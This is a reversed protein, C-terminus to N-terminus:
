QIIINKLRMVPGGFYVPIGQMPEGKGCNGAYTKIKDGILDISSWLTPTTVEMVPAFVPKTIEGKEILYAECGTYRQHYRKDDINWQMYSKIYIGKKTEKIIEEESSDGSQVITNSMRLMPEVDYNNARSCGNSKTKLEFATERNHLFENIMGNKILYKKNAKVGEDDYLYFGYSNEITPDEIVNVIESGIRTNIMEPTVFSEGAQAGERGLIRDAEYPHGVSEHVAIGSIESGVVLDMKGKPSKIGDNMNNRLLEVEEPIKKILDWKNIIEYGSCAGYQLYRQISKKDQSLTFFYLMSIRPIVSSIKSGESNIYYKEAVEDGITLYRQPIKILHKDIEKLINLKKDETFNEIKQKQIVKYNTKQPKEESFFIKKSIKNSNKTTAISKKMLSLIKDKDFNNTSLFGLNNNVLYRIGIGKTIDFGTIEPNGSKLVFGSSTRKETRVEVYKCGLEQTKKLCFEAIDEHM